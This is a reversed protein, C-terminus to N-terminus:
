PQGTEALVVTRCQFDSRLIETIKLGAGGEPLFLLLKVLEQRKERLPDNGSTLMALTRDLEAANRVWYFGEALKRGFENFADVRHTYIIPKGTAFYELLMSSIDSVLVDSTLFTDQYDGSRDLAMNSSARYAQEMRELEAATLEGTQLFNQLCLPHPRFVFDVDNHQRCFEVFFDKYDFFHSNSESTRWRPTWLIRKLDPRTGRRWAKGSLEPRQILYDLKPFGSLVYANEDLWTEHKFHNMFLGRGFPSDTFTLHVFRFFDSRYSINQVEDGFLTAGYPIYCVRAVMSVREVSWEPPFVDYPTQFFVYDPSLSAPSLWQNRERDYGSIAPIGKAQLFELAGEDKYEGDPLTTHRYRLTVVTARFGSDNIVARYVSDFSSWLARIHCVFLVHIPQNHFRKVQARARFQADSLARLMAEHRELQRALPRLRRDLFGLVVRKIVNKL